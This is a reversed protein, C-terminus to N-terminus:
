KALEDALRQCDACSKLHARVHDAAEPPLEGDLLAMVEEFQASHDATM